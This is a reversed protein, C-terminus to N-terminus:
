IIEQSFPKLYDQRKKWSPQNAKQVHALHDGFLQQIGPHKKLSPRFRWVM